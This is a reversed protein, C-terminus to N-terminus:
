SSSIPIRREQGKGKLFSGIRFRRSSEMRQRYAKKLFAFVCNLKVDVVHSVEGNGKTSDTRADQGIFTHDSSDVSM